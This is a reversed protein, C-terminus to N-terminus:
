FNVTTMVYGWTSVASGYLSRVLTDPFFASCGAQLAVSKTHKWNMTVDLEKGLNKGAFSPHYVVDTRFFHAEAALNLRAGANTSATLAYDQLGYSALLRDPYYDMLGYFSHNSGFLSNFQRMSSDNANNDGSVRCASLSILTSSELRAMYGLVASLLRGRIDALPQAEKIQMEGFQQYGELMWQIRQGNGHFNLGITYRNLIDKGQDIGSKM